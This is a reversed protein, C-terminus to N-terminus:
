RAGSGPQCFKRFRAAWRRVHSAAPRLAVGSALDRRTRGVELVKHPVGRQVLVYCSPGFVEMRLATRLSDAWDNAHRRRLYPTFRARRRM